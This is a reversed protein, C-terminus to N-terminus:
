RGTGGPLLGVLVEVAEALGAATVEAEGPRAEPGVWVARFGAARAAEVDTLRDGVMWRPGRTPRALAAWRLLGPRPKRCGCGDEARHWCLFSEAIVGGEGAVADLVRQHVEELAARTAEGKAAGPQNTAICTVFGAENLRRVAAAAGPLMVVEEASLPSEWRALAPNWTARNLVGDRDLVVLGRAERRERVYGRFSELGAPSGVEHFRAQVELHALRGEVSLASLAPAVDSPSALTSVFDRTLVLLGYDIFRYREAPLRARAKDYLIPRGPEFAVNSTDWRGRNGFITMLAPARSAQAALEVESWDVPLYADGWTLFFREPLAGQDLCHRLAGGTGLPRPEAVLRVPVPSGHQALYVEIQEALHGVSLVVEPVGRAHLLELLWALFPRGEVDVLAKPITETLPRLRTALGGALVV